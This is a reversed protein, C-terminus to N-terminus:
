VSLCRVTRKRQLHADDDDVYFVVETGSPNPLPTRGGGDIVTRYLRNYAHARM